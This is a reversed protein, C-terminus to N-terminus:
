RAPEGSASKAAARSARWRLVARDATKWARYGARVLPDCAIPMWAPVKNRTSVWAVPAIASIDIADPQLRVGHDRRARCLLVTLIAQDFKHVRRDLGAPAICSREAACDSWRSILDRVWQRRGDFGLVGGARYREYRDDATAGLRELTRPDCCQALPTQGALSFVGDRDVGDIMAALDGHFLTGSDFWFVPEDSQDVMAKILLPKWAFNALDRVHPPWASFDFRELLCWRFRRELRTRDRQDLGLDFAVVRHRAPLAQREASALMQHLTRAFRHDAATVIPV